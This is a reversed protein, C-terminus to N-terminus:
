SGTVVASPSGDNAPTSRARAPIVPLTPTRQCNQSSRAGRRRSWYLLGALALTALLVAEVLRVHALLRESFSGLSYGGAAVAGAWAGSGLVNLASFKALPMKNAGILVAGASRLGYLFRVLVITLAPHRQMVTDLRSNPTTLAPIRASLARWKWRGLLFWTHDGLAAGFAGIGIVLPLDLLGQAAAFGAALLMAEGELLAGALVALYGVTGLLESM